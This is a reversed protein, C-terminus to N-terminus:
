RKIRNLIQSLIYYGLYIKLPVNRHKENLFVSEDKINSSDIIEKIQDLIEYPGLNNTKARDKKTAKYSNQLNEYSKIKKAISIIFKNIEDSLIKCDVNVSLNPIVIDAKPGQSFHIEAKWKIENNVFDSDHNSLEVRYRNIVLYPIHYKFRKKGLCPKEEDVTIIRYNLDNFMEKKIRKPTLYDNNLIVKKEKINITSAFAYAMKPPVANGILRYKTNLSDGYFLYDFPFSMLTAFERVTPARFKNNKYPYIFSERAAFTVTAVITRSIKNFNEPFSMKGMYGKDQKQRKAKEWQYQAIEKIYHQDTIEKRQLKLLPYNPDSIVENLFKKPEGIQNLINILKKEEINLAQNIEPEPFDGCLYRRRKSPVGFIEACYEHSCPNKVKLIFDGRIGLEESTYKDNIWRSANPVNEMIWYKLISNKKYKKRAVIRFFSEILSIGNAKDVNGSNNSNSFDVCPPSGIIIESDPILINFEDDSLLSIKHIDENIVKASIQNMSFTNIAPIWNDIGIIIEFGAQRFGESFGGAGCFLDIVRM